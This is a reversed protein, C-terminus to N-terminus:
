GFNREREILLKYRIIDLVSEALEDLDPGASGGEQSNEPQETSSSASSSNREEGALALAPSSGSDSSVASTVLDAWAGADSDGDSNSDTGWSSFDSSGLSNTSWSPATATAFSSSQTNSDSGFYPVSPTPMAMPSFGDSTARAPSSILPSQGFGPAQWASTSESPVAFAGYPVALPMADNSQQQGYLAQLTAMWPPQEEAIPQSQEGSGAESQAFSDATPSMESLPLMLTPNAPSGDSGPWGYDGMSASMHSAPRMITGIDSLGGEAPINAMASEAVYSTPTVDTVYHPPMSIPGPSVSTSEGSSAVRNLSESATLRSAVTGMDRLSQAGGVIPAASLGIPTSAGVPASTSSVPLPGVVPMTDAITRETQAPGSSRAVLLDAGVGTAPAPMARPLDDSASVIEHGLSGLIRALLDSQAATEIPQATSLPAHSRVLSDAVDPMLTWAQPEPEPQRVQVTESPTSAVAPGSAIPSVPAEMTPRVVAESPLTARQILDGASESEVTLDSQASQAAHPMDLPLPQSTATSIELVRPLDPHEVQSGPLQEVQPAEFARQTAIDSAQRDVSVPPASGTEAAAQVTMTPQSSPSEALPPLSESAISPTASPPAIAQSAQREPEAVRTSPLEVDEAGASRVEDPQSQASRGHSRGHHVWPMEIAPPRSEDQEEGETSEGRGFLRDFLSGLFGRSEPERTASTERVVEPLAPANEGIPTQAVLESSAAVQAQTPTSTSISPSAEPLPEVVSPGAPTTSYPSSPVLEAAPPAQEAVAPQFPQFPGLPHSEQAQTPQLQVAREAPSEQTQQVQQAPRTQRAPQAPQSSQFPQFPGLPPPPPQAQQSTVDQGAPASPTIIARVPMELVPLTPAPSPASVIDPIVREAPATPPPTPPQALPPSTPVSQPTQATISTAVTDREAAVTAQVPTEAPSPIPQKETPTPEGTIFRRVAEPLPLASAVRDILQGVPGREARELTEEVTRSPARQSTTQTSALPMELRPGEEVSLLPAQVVSPAPQQPQAAEPPSQESAPAQASQRGEPLPLEEWSPRVMRSIMDTTPVLDRNLSGAINRPTYSSTEILPTHSVLPQTPLAAPGPLYEVVVTKAPPASEAVQSPPAAVPAPAAPAQAVEALSPQVVPQPVSAAPASAVPVPATPTTGVPPATQPPPPPSVRAAPRLASALQDEVGAEEHAQKNPSVARWVLQTPPPAFPERATRPQEQAQVPTLLQRGPDPRSREDPLVGLRRTVQRWLAGPRVPSASPVAHPSSLRALIQQTLRAAASGALMPMESEGPVNSGASESRLLGAREGSLQQEIDKREDM